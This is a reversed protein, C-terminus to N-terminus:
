KRNKLSQLSFFNKSIREDFTIEEYRIQTSENPHARPQLRLRMPIMRGGVRKIEDFYLTRVLETAEDFYAMKLPYYDQAHVWLEVHGWVVHADPKPVARIHLAVDSPSRSTMEKTLGTLASVPIEAVYDAFYDETFTSEKVLDDNTFHSGMWAGSMMSTPIKTVRDIRPLYNWINVGVKLTAVGRDKLPRRIVVLSYDSGLSWAELSLARTYRATKVTMSMRAHSTTGRWLHDIHELLEAIVIQGAGEILGRGTLGSGTLGSTPVMEASIETDKAEAVSVASSMLLMYLVCAGLVKRRGEDVLIRKNTFIRLLPM